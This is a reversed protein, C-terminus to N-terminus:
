EEEKKKLKIIEQDVNYRAIRIADDLHLASGTCEVKNKRITVTVFDKPNTDINPRDAEFAVILFTEDELRLAKLADCLKGLEERNM